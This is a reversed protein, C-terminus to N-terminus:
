NFAVEEHNPAPEVYLQRGFFAGMTRQMYKRICGVVVHANSFGAVPYVLGTGSTSNALLVALHWFSHLCFTGLCHVDLALAVSALPRLSVLRARTRKWWQSKFQM